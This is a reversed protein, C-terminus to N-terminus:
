DARGCLMQLIYGDSLIQPVDMRLSYRRCAYYAYYPHWMRKPLSTSTGRLNAGVDWGWGAAIGAICVVDVEGPSLASLGDGLRFDIGQGALVDPTESFLPVRKRPTGIMLITTNPLINPTGRTQSM